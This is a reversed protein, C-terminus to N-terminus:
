SFTFTNGKRGKERMEFEIIIYYFFNLEIYNSKVFAIFWESQRKLLTFKKKNSLYNQM